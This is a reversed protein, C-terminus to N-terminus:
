HTQVCRPRGVRRRPFPQTALDGDSSSARNQRLLKMSVPRLEEPHERIYNLIRHRKGKGRDGEERTAPLAPLISLGSQEVRSYISRWTKKIASLSVQLEDTLEEDTLGRLAAGLQRQEARSFGIQPVGVVFLGSAWSGFRTSALSENMVLVLPQETLLNLDVKSLDPQLGDATAVAAGWQVVAKIEEVISPQFFAQKVRHGRVTEVFAGMYLHNIDMRTKDELSPASPWAIINLGGCTNAMQFQRNSLVPSNGGVIRRAVEPGM